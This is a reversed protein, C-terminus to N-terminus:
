LWYFFGRLLIVPAVPCEWRLPLWGQSGYRGAELRPTQPPLSTLVHTRKTARGAPIGGAVAPWSAPRSLDTATDPQAIFHRLAVGTLFTAGALAAQV